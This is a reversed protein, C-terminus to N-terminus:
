LFLIVYRWLDRNILYLSIFLDQADLCSRHEIEWESFGYPHNNMFHASPSSAAGAGTGEGTMQSNPRPGIPSNTLKQLSKRALRLTDLPGNEHIEYSGDVSIVIRSNRSAYLSPRAEQDITSILTSPRPVSILIAIRRAKWNEERLTIPDLDPQLLLLVRLVLNSKNARCIAIPTDGKGVCLACCLV